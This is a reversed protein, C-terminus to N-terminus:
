LCCSYCTCLDQPLSFSLKKSYSFATLTTSALLSLLLAFHSFCVTLNFAPRYLLPPSKSHRRLFPLWYMMVKRSPKIEQSISMLICVYLVSEALVPM